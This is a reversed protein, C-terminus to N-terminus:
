ERKGGPAALAVERGDDAPLRIELARQTRQAAHATQTAKSSM